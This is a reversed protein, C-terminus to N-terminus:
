INTARALTVIQEVEDREQRPWADRSVAKDNNLNLKESYGNCNTSKELLAQMSRINLEKLEIPLNQQYFPHKFIGIMDIRKGPDIEFIQNILHICDHSLSIGSPINYKAMLIREITSRFNKPNKPDEFPYSGILMVFLTVGCSWVDALKGDYSPQRKLVEPAIYAPTGVTSKAASHLLSSKSYGFDCVKIIPVGSSSKDLLINELKLDRHCVGKSHLYAVGSILQQFYFRAENENFRGCSCIKDFLEGGNAYEMVIALHTPTLRVESFMVINPHHLSHHIVVERMVNNDITKEGRRILKVAVRQDNEVNRFLKTIGFNGSGLDREFIYPAMGAYDVSSCSSADDNKKWPKM